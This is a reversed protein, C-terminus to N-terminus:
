LVKTLKNPKGEENLGSLSPLLCDAFLRLGSSLCSNIRTPHLRTSALLSGFHLQPSDSWIIQWEPNVKLPDLVQSRVHASLARYKRYITKWSDILWNLLQQEMIPKINKMIWCSHKAAWSWGCHIFNKVDFGGHHM